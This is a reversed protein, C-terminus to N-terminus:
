AEGPRLATASGCQTCFKQGARLAGGCEACTHPASAALKAEPVIPLATGCATCFRQEPGTVSGCNPCARPRDMPELRDRPQAPITGCQMCCPDDSLLPGGCTRCTDNALANRTKDIFDQREALHKSLAAASAEPVTILIPGQPCGDRWGDRAFSVWRDAEPVYLWRDGALDEGTLGILLLGFDQRSMDGRLAQERYVAILHMYDHQSLVLPTVVTKASNRVAENERKTM